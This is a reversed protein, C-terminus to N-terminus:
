GHHLMEDKILDTLLSRTVVQKYDHISKQMSSLQNSETQLLAQLKETLKAATADKEKLLDAGKVIDSMFHGNRAQHDNSAHPYPILIGPVEYNIQEAISGAGARCIALDIGPWVLHMHKEFEKVTAARVVSGM